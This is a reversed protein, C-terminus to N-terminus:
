RRVVWFFVNVCALLSPNFLLCTWVQGGRGLIESNNIELEEFQLMRCGAFGDLERSMMSFERSGFDVRRLPTRLSDEGISPQLCSCLMASSQDSERAFGGQWYVTDAYFTWYMAFPWGLSFAIWEFGYQLCISVDLNVDEYITAVLSGTRLFFFFWSYPRIAPRRPFPFLNSPAM